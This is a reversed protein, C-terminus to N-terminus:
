ITAREKELDALTLRLAVLDALPYPKKKGAHARWAARIDDPYTRSKGGALHDGFTAGFFAEVAQWITAASCPPFDVSGKCIAGTKDVHPAPFSYLLTAATPRQKVAFIGYSDGQGVFVAPPFRLALQEVTKGSALNVVRRQAPVFIGIREKGGGRRYFLCHPPLLGTAFPQGALAAAVDDPAVEFSSVVLGREDYRTLVIAEEFLHLALRLRQRDAYDPATGAAALEMANGPLAGAM